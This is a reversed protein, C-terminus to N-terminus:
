LRPFRLQCDRALGPYKRSPTSVLHAAGLGRALFPSPITWVV